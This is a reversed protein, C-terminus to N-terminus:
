LLLYSEQYMSWGFRPIRQFCTILFGRGLFGASAFIVWVEPVFLLCMRTPSAGIRSEDFGITHGTSAACSAFRNM